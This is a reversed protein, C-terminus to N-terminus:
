YICKSLKIGALFYIFILLKLNLIIQFNYKFKVTKHYLLVGFKLNVLVLFIQRRVNKFFAVVAGFFKQSQVHVVVRTVKQAIDSLGVLVCLVLLQKLVFLAFNLMRQIKRLTYFWFDTHEFFYWVLVM